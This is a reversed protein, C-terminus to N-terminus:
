SAQRVVIEDVALSAPQTGAGLVILPLPPQGPIDLAITPASPAYVLAPQNLGPVSGATYLDHYQRSEVEIAGGTAFQPNAAFVTCGLTGADLVMVPSSERGSISETLPFEQGKGADPANVTFGGPQEMTASLLSSAEDYLNVTARLTGATPAASHLTPDTVGTSVLIAAVIHEDPPNTDARLSAFEPPNLSLASAALSIDAAGELIHASLAAIAKLAVADTLDNGVRTLTNGGSIFVGDSLRLITCANVTESGGLTVMPTRVPQPPAHEAPASRPGAADGPDASDSTTVETALILNSIRRLAEADAACLTEPGALTAASAIALAGAAAGAILNAATDRVTLAVGPAVTAGLSRLHDLMAVDITSNANVVIADIADGLAALPARALAIAAAADAVTIRNATGDPNASSFGAIGFLTAAEATSLTV